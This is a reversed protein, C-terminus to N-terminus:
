QADEGERFGNYYAEYQLQIIDESYTSKIGERNLWNGVYGIAKMRSEFYHRIHANTIPSDVQRSKLYYANEFEKM